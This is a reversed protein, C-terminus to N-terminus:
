LNGKIWETSHLSDKDWATPEVTGASPNNVTADATIQTISVVTDTVVSCNVSAAASVQPVTGTKSTTSGIVVTSMTHNDAGNGNLTINLATLDSGSTVEAWASYIRRRDSDHVVNQIETFSGTTPGTISTATVDGVASAEQVFASAIVLSFDDADADQSITFSDSLSTQNSVGTTLQIANGKIPSVTDMGTIRYLTGGTPAPSGGTADFSFSSAAADTSDAYKYQVNVYVNASDGDAHVLTWDTKTAITSGDNRFLVAVMLDGVALGSPKTIDLSGTDTITDTATSAVTIAM